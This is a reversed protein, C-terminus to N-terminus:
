ARYFRGDSYQLAYWRLLPYLLVSFWSALIATGVFLACLTATIFQVAPRRVDIQFLLLPMSLPALAALVAIKLSAPLLPLLPTAYLLQGGIFCLACCLACCCALSAGLKECTRIYQAHSIGFNREAWAFQADRAAQAALSFSALLGCVLAACGFVQLPANLYSLPVCSSAACAALALLLREGQVIQRWRWSFLTPQVANRRPAPRARRALYIGLLLAPPAIALISILSPVRLLLHCLLVISAASLLLAMTGRLLLFVRLQHPPAGLQRQLQCYHDRSAHRLFKGLSFASIATCLLAASRAFSDRMVPSIAAVAHNLFDHFIYAFTAAVVFACLLVTIEKGLDYRVRRLPALLSCRFLYTCTSRSTLSHETPM